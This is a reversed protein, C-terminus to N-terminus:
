GPKAIGCGLWCGWVVPWVKGPVVTSVALYGLQGQQEQGLVLSGLAVARPAWAVVVELARGRVVLGEVAHGM